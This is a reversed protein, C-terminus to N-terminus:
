IESLAENVFIKRTKARSSVKVGLPSLDLDDTCYRTRKTKALLVRYVLSASSILVAIRRRPQSTQEFSRPVISLPRALIVDCDTISPDPAVLVTHAIRDYDSVEGDIFNTIILEGSNVVTSGDLPPLTLSTTPSPFSSSPYVLIQFNPVTNGGSEGMSNNVNFNSNISESCAKRSRLTVIEKFQEANTKRLENLELNMIGLLFGQHKVQSSRFLM